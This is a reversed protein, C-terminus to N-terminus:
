EPTSGQFSPHRGHQNRSGDAGADRGLVVLALPRPQFGGLCRRQHCAVAAAGADAASRLLAVGEGGGLVAIAAPAPLTAPVRTPAPAASLAGAGQAAAGATARAILSRATARDRTTRTVRTLIRM